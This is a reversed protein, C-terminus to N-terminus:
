KDRRLQRLRIWCFLMALFLQMRKNFLVDEFNCFRDDLWKNVPSIKFTFGEGM